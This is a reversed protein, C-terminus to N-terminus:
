LQLIMSYGAYISTTQIKQADECQLPRLNSVQM